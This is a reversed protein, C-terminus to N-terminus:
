SATLSRRAGGAVAARMRETPPEALGWADWYPPREWDQPTGPRYAADDVQQIEATYEIPLEDPDLYYSFVNAGPGHRGVGWQMPYGHQKLRGANRMVADISPVEFAVHNLSVNGVRTFALSHHDANCGLFFMARSEDRVRFGLERVAFAVDAEVDISNLVVHSIKSPRAGAPEIEPHRAVGSSFRWTRGFRDRGSCGYGGGPTDLPAPPVVIDLSTSLRPALADVAERSGLAFEVAELGPEGARLVLAHHEPGAARFWRADATAHVPELAWVEEYFRASRELDSVRLEVARVALVIAPLGSIDPASVM